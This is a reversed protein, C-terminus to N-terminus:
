TSIAAPRRCWGTMSSTPTIRERSRSAKPWYEHPSLLVEHQHGTSDPDTTVTQAHLNPVRAPRGPAITSGATVNLTGGGARSTPVASRTQAFVPGEVNVQEIEHTHESRGSGAENYSVQEPEAAGDAYIVHEHGDAGVLRVEDESKTEIRRLHQSEIHWPVIVTKETGSPVQLSGADLDGPVQWLEQEILVYGPQLRLSDEMPRLSEPSAVGSGAAQGAGYRASKGRPEVAPWRISGSRDSINGSTLARSDAEEILDTDEPGDVLKVTDTPAARWSRRAPRGGPRGM